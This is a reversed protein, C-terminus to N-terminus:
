VSYGGGADHKWIWQDAINPQLTIDVLFGRCEGLMKEEWAWLPRRWQWTAGGEEWGLACM